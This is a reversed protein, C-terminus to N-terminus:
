ITPCTITNRDCKWTGPSASFEAAIKWWKRGSGFCSRWTRNPRNSTRPSGLRGHGHALGFPCTQALRGLYLAFRWGEISKWTKLTTSKALSLINSQSHLKFKSTLVMLPKESRIGSHVTANQLSIPFNRDRHQRLRSCFVCVAADPTFWGKFLM